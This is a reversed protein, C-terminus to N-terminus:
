YGEKLRAKRNKLWELKQVRVKDWEKAWKALSEPLEEGVRVLTYRGLYARKSAAYESAAHTCIGTIEHIEKARYEGLLKGNDYLAYIIKRM